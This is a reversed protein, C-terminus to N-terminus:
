AMPPVSLLDIELQDNRVRVKYRWMAKKPPGARRQGETDFIGGHCPCFFWNSGPDHSLPCGLDTCSRSYVVFDDEARRWVFVGKENLQAADDKVEVRSAVIQGVPFKHALGLSRWDERPTDGSLQPISYIGLPVLVSAIMGAGVLKLTNALFERRTM